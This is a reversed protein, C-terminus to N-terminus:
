PFAKMYLLYDSCMYTRQTYIHALLDCLSFFSRSLVDEGKEIKELVIKRLKM